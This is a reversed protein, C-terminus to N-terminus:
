TFCVIWFNQGFKNTQKLTKRRCVSFYDHILLNLNENKAQKKRSGSYNIIVIFYVNLIM